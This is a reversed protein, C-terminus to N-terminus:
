GCIHQQRRVTFYLTAGDESYLFPSVYIYEQSPEALGVKLYDSIVIQRTEGTRPDSEYLGDRPSGRYDPHDPPLRIRSNLASAFVSGDPTFPQRGAGAVLLSDYERRDSGDSTMSVLRSSAYPGVALLM